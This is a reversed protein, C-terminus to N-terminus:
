TIPRVQLLATDTDWIELEILPLFGRALWFQRTPAYTDPADAPRKPGASTMALVLRFGRTRLDTILAEIIATGVGEHCRSRHVAMWTVEATAPTRPAWTAFGVVRGADDAVWGAQSRVARACDVRGEAHGFFDPHSLVIADCADADAPALPRITISM